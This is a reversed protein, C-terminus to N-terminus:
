GRSGSLVTARYGGAILESALRAALGGVEHSTGVWRSTMRRSGDETAAVALVSLEPARLTALAGLPARCGGGAAELIGRELEVCVRTPADDLAAVARLAAADDARVQIALAGQGPAPTILDADLIASIREERGLRSLGAVALILADVEGADLRRLRTDVNGHLPRIRLDPRAALLFATRRPSDTGVTAGHPLAGLSPGERTVLADRADARPPYAGIVLDVEPEIPVDKASHVALDVEGRRLASELAGVFAGEGWATDPLRVDGDTVITVAVVEHGARELEAAVLNSQARALLSGRTGLRLRM